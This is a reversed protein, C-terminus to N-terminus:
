TRLKIKFTSTEYKQSPVPIFKADKTFKYHFTRCLRNIAERLTPSTPCPVELYLYGNAELARVGYAGFADLMSPEQKTDFINRLDKLIRRESASM